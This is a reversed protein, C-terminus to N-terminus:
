NGLGLIAVDVESKIQELMERIMPHNSQAGPVVSQKTYSIVKEVGCREKLLTEFRELVIAFNEWHSDTNVLGVTRGRLDDPRPSLERKQSNSKALPSRILMTLETM